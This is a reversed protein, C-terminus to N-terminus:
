ADFPENLRHAVRKRPHRAGDSGHNGPREDSRQLKSACDTVGVLTTGDERRGAVRQNLLVVLRPVKLASVSRTKKNLFIITMM